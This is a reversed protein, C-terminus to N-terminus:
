KLQPNNSYSKSSSWGWKNDYHKSNIILSNHEFIPFDEPNSFTEDGVLILNYNSFNTTSIDNSDIIDHTFGLDDLIDIYKQEFNAGSNLIYVVDTASILPLFIIIFFLFFLKKM